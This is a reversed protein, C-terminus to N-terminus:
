KPTIMPGDSGALNTLPTIEGNFGDMVSYSYNLSIWTYLGVCPRTRKGYRSRRDNYKERNWFDVIMEPYVYCYNANDYFETHTFNNEIWKENDPSSYNPLFRFGDDTKISTSM